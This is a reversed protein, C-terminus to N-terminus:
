FALKKSKNGQSHLQLVQLCTPSLKATCSKCEVGWRNEAQVTRSFPLKRLEGREVQPDEMHGHMDWATISFCVPAIQQHPVKGSELDENLISKLHIKTPFTPSSLSVSALKEWTCNKLVEAIVKKNKNDAQIKDLFTGLKFIVTFVM